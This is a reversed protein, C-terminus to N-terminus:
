SPASAAKRRGLAYRTGKCVLAAGGSQDDISRALDYYAPRLFRADFTGREGRDLTCYLVNDDGVALTACDLESEVDDNAKVVFGRRADGTVRTVVLPTDEVTVPQRDVGVDVIWGGRGDARISRSFLLAIRANAIAEEDAYWRGDTRFSIKYGGIAWFGAKPM